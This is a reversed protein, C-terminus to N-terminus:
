RPRDVHVPEYDVGGDPLGNLGLGLYLMAYACGVIIAISLLARITRM